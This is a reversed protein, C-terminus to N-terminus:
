HSLILLFLVIYLLFSLISNLRWCYYFSLPLYPFYLVPLYSGFCFWFMSIFFGLGCYVSYPIIAGEFYFYLVKLIFVFSTFFILSSIFHSFCIHIHTPTRSYILVHASLVFVWYLFGFAFFWFLVFLFGQHFTLFNLSNNGSHQVFCHIYINMTQTGLQNEKWKKM